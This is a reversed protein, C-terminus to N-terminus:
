DHSELLVWQTRRIGSQSNSGRSQFADQSVWEPQLSLSLSLFFFFFFVRLVVERGLRNPSSHGRVGMVWSGQESHGPRGVVSCSRRHCRAAHAFRHALTHRERDCRRYMCLQKSNVRRVRRDSCKREEMLKRKKNTSTVCGGGTKRRKKKGGGGEGRGGGGGVEEGGLNGNDFM